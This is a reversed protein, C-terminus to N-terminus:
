IERRVAGPLLDVGDMLLKCRVASETIGSTLLLVLIVAWISTDVGNSQM